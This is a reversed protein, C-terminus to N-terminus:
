LIGSCYVMDSAYDLVGLDRGACVSDFVRMAAQSMSSNVAVHGIAAGDQVAVFAALAAPLLLFREYDDNPLYVPTGDVRRVLLSHL